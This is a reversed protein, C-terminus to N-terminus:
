NRCSKGYISESLQAFRGPSINAHQLVTRLDCICEQLENNRFVVSSGAALFMSDVASLCQEIVLRITAFCSASEIPSLNNSKLSTIAHIEDITSELAASVSKEVVISRGLSKKIEFDEFRRKANLTDWNNFHHSFYDLARDLTGLAIAGMHLSFHESRTIRTAPDCFCSVATSRQFTHSDPVFSSELAISNSSTHRLGVADWDQMIMVEGSRHITGIIEGDDTKSYNLVWNSHTVGSVFKWEGSIKWGGKVRKAVGDPKTSSALFVNPTEQYILEFTELPLFSLLLPSQCGVMALWGLSGSVSALTRLIRQVTPTDAEHGGLRSPLFLRLLGGFNLEKVLERIAAKSNQEDALSQRIETRRVWFDQFIDSNLNSLQRLDFVHESHNGMNM